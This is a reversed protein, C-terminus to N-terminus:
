ESRTIEGKWHEVAVAAGDLVSAAYVALWKGAPLVLNPVPEPKKNDCNLFWLSGDPRTEVRDATLYIEGDASVTKLVKVGWYYNGYQFTGNQSKREVM